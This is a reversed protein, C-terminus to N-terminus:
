RCEHFVINVLNPVILTILLKTYKEITKKTDWSIMRPMQFVNEWADETEPSAGLNRWDLSPCESAPECRLLASTGSM